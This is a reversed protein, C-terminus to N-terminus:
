ACKVEFIRQRGFGSVQDLRPGATLRRAVPRAAVEEVQVFPIRLVEPSELIENCLGVRTANHDLDTEEVCLISSTPGHRRQVPLVVDLTFATDVVVSHLRELM